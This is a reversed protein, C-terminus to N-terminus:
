LDSKKHQARKIDQETLDLIYDTMTKGQGEARKRIREKQEASLKINIAEIM